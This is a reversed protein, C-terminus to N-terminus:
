NFTNPNINIFSDFINLFNKAVADNHPVNNVLELVAPAVIGLRPPTLKSLYMLLVVQKQHPQPLDFHIM